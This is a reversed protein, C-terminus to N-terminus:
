RRGSELASVLADIEEQLTKEDTALCYRYLSAILPVYDLLIVTVDPPASYLVSNDDLIETRFQDFGGFAKIMMTGVVLVPLLGFLTRFSLAAAMQPARDERLQRAGYRGLDYAFRVAKEWRGLEDRPQTVARKLWDIFPQIKLQAM